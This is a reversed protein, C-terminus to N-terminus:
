EEWILFSERLCAGGEIIGAVCVQYPVMTGKPLDIPALLIRTIGNSGTPDLFNVMTRGDPLMISVIFNINSLPRTGEFVAVGIEQAQGPALMPSREWVKVTMTQPTVPQSNVAPAQGSIKQFYDRGLPLLRIRSGPLGSANYELCFHEFCQGSGGNDLRYVRKIPPGSVKISGRSSIFDFVEKPINFGRGARTPYFVYQPNDSPPEPDDPIVGVEVPLDLFEVRSLHRPDIIMVVNEFIRFFQGESNTQVEALPNGTLEKGLFKAYNAIALSAQNLSGYPQRGQPPLPYFNLLISRHADANCKDECYWVGYPMLRIGEGPKDVYQYFAMNAFYQEYRQEKENYLLDTLPPGILVVGYLKYIPVLEQWIAYGDVVLDDGIAPVSPPQEIGLERGLPYIRYQQGIPANPNYVMLYGHTYQYYTGNRTFAESIAPSRLEGLASVLPNFMEGFEIGYDLFKDRGGFGSNSSQCGNLAIALMLIITLAFYTTQKTM